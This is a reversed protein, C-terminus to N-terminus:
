NETTKRATRKESRAVSVIALTEKFTEIEARLREIEKLAQQYLQKYSIGPRSEKRQSEAVEHALYAFGHRQWADVDGNADYVAKVTLFSQCFDSVEADLQDEVAEGQDECWRRYEADAYCECLLKVRDFLVQTGQKKLQRADHLKMRWSDIPKGNQQDSANQKEKAKANM